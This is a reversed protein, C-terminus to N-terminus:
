TADTPEFQCTESNEVSLEESTVKTNFMRVTEGTTVVVKLKVIVQIVPALELMTGRGEGVRRTEKELPLELEM